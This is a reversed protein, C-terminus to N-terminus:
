PLKRRLEEAAADLRRARRICEAAYPLLDASRQGTSNLRAVAQNLNVGIRRVLGASRILEALAERVPADAQGPGGRAADVAAQAAYAGRALGARAAAADLEGFEQETLTFEVRRPRTVAQRARRGPPGAHQRGATVPVQGM